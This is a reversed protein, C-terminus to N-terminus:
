ILETCPADRSATLKTISWAITKEEILIGATLGLIRRNSLPDSRASGVTRSREMADVRELRSSRGTKGVESRCELLTSGTWNPPKGARNSSTSITRCISRPSVSKVRSGKKIPGPLANVSVRGFRRLRRRSCQGVKFVLVASVNARSPLWRSRRKASIRTARIM